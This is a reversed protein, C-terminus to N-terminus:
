FQNVNDILFSASDEPEEAQPSIQPRFPKLNQQPAPHIEREPGYSDPKAFPDVLPPIDNREPEPLSDIQREIPKVAQTALAEAAIGSIGSKQKSSIKSKPNVADTVSGQYLDGAERADQMNEVIAAFM